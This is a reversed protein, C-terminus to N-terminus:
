FLRERTWTIDTKVVKAPRGVAMSNTPIEKNITTDSGIICGDEIVSGKMIKTNPAIWVHKGIVVDRAPNIRMNTKMDYISHDDSTRVIINNSFMCENGIIIRRNDESANIHCTHTFSCFDGVRIEINNGSLWFSCREGIMCDSGIILKNNNGRIRIKTGYCQTREGITIVNNQGIIDKNIYRGKWRDYLLKTM